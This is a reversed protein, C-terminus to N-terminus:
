LVFLKFIVVGYKLEDELAYFSRYTEVMEKKTKEKFGLDKKDVNDAMEQFNKFVKRDEILACFSKEGNIFKIVDGIKFTKRREDFLRGEYIKEGKRIKEFYEEKISLNHQVFPSNSILWVYYDHKEESIFYHEKVVNDWFMKAIINAKKTFFRVKKNIKAFIENFFWKGCGNKRYKPAIYFEAVEMVDQCALRLLMFGGLFGDIYIGIPYRDEDEWYRHFYKYVPRGNEDFEIDKDYQYLEMLYKDFMNKAASMEERVILRIEKM